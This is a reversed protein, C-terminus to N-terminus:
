TTEGQNPALAAEIGAVVFTELVSAEAVFSAGADIRKAAANIAAFILHALSAPERVGLENLPAILSTMFYGHLAVLEGRTEEPLQEVSIERVLQHQPGSVHSLSYHMWVRVQELPDQLPGLLRDIENSIDAMDNMMVEGLVHERSAFYQYIAPRSLGTCRALNAMSVAEAGSAEILSLAASLIAERRLQAIASSM